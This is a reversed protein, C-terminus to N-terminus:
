LAFPKSAISAETNRHVQYGYKSTPIGFVVQSKRVPMTGNKLEIGDVVFMLMATSIIIVDNLSKGAGLSEHSTTLVEIISKLGAHTGPPRMDIERFSSSLPRRCPTPCSLSPELVDLLLLLYPNLEVYTSIDAGGVNGM